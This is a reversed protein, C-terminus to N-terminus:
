AGAEKRVWEVLEIVTKNVSQRREHARERIWEYLEVPWRVQSIKVGKMDGRGDETAACGNCSYM